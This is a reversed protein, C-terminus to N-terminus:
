ISKEPPKCKAIESERGCNMTREIGRKATMLRLAKLMWSRM